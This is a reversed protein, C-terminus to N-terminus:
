MSLLNCYLFGPLPLWLVFQTILMREKSSSITKRRRKAGGMEGEGIEPMENINWYKIHILPTAFSGTM